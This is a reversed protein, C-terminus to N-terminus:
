AVQRRRRRALALLGGCAAILGPLGAGVVPGPVSYANILVSFNSTGGSEGTLSFSDKRVQLGTVPDFTIFDSNPGGPLLVSLQFDHGTFTETVGCQGSGGLTCTLQLYADTIFPDGSVDYKWVFDVASNAGTAIAAFDLEVGFEGTLAGTGIFPTVSAFQLTANGALVTPTLFMHDFTIPGVTCSSGGSFQVPIAVGVTPNVGSIPNPSSDCSVAWAPAGMLLTTILAAAVSLARWDKMVAEM